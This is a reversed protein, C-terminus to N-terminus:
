RIKDKFEKVGGNSDVDVEIEFEGRNAKSYTGAFEFQYDGNGTLICLKVQDNVSGGNSLHDLLESILEHISLM